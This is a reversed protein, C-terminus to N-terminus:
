SRVVVPELLDVHTSSSDGVDPAPHVHELESQRTVKGDILDQDRHFCCANGVPVLENPGATPIDAALRWHREADLRSPYDLCNAVPDTPESEAVLHHGM